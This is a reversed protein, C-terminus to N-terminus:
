VPYLPLNSNNGGFKQSESLEYTREVGRTIMGTKRMFTIAQSVTDVLDDHVGKPFEEVETVVM